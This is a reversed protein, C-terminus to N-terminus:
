NEFHVSLEYLETVFVLGDLRYIPLLGLYVNRWLLCISPWCACSFISLMGEINLDFCILINLDFGYHPVVECQDSHSDNIVRRLTGM